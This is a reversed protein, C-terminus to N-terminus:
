FRTRAQRREKMYADNGKLFPMRLISIIANTNKLERFDKLGIDMESHPKPPEAIYSGFLYDWWPLNFGYNAMTFPTSTSHHVRHMDPTVVLFRLVCDTNKPIRINSHNFMSTANLVVEFIIIAVVPPGMLIISITKILMSLGIELPHFRIGTSVDFEIDAHHARHVRWLIPVIHFLKHQLYIIFDMLLFFFFVSAIKPLEFFGLIGLGNNQAFIGVSVATFPILLRLLLNNLFALGLNSLWRQYKHLDLTRRPFFIEWVGILGFVGVFFSLRIPIENELLWTNWNM